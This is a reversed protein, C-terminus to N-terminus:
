FWSRIGFTLRLAGATDGRERAFHRAQELYGDYTVAIYPAFKRWIEYRLRLGTDIDSLGAGSGRPKDAKSYLNLEVQPQLILRNTILIDYSGEFRSAFRGRDSVYGTAQFEFQYLALGQLGFAAWTRTPGSDLDVRIGSQVDFYTSISRSYLLEQDGDDMRGKTITGESRLWLRNYDGGAWAEGDWRFSSNAGDLRGEFQNLLGHVWIGQDMVPKVGDIYTPGDDNKMSAPNGTAPSATGSPLAVTRPAASVPSLAVMEGLAPSLALLARLLAARSLFRASM